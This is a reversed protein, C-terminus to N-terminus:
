CNYGKLFMAGEKDMFGKVVRHGDVLCAIQAIGTEDFDDCLEPIFPLESDFIISGNEDVYKLNHAIDIVRTFGHKFSLVKKYVCPVIHKNEEQRYLGYVNDRIDWNFSRILIVGDEFLERDPVEFFSM